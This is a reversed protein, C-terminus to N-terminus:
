KEAGLYSAAEVAAREADAVSEAISMPGAATGAIFVGPQRPVQFFGSQPANIGLASLTQEAGACPTIGISLSVLDFEEERSDHTGDEAYVVKLGGNEGSFIDGPIARV